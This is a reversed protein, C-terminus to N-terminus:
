KISLLLLFFFPLSKPMGAVTALADGALLLEDRARVLCSESWNGYYVLVQVISWGVPAASRDFPCADCADCATYAPTAPVWPPFILSYLFAPVLEPVAQIMYLIARLAHAYVAPLNTDLVVFASPFADAANRLRDFIPGTQLWQLGVPSDFVGDCDPTTLHTVLAVTQNWATFWAAMPETIVHSWPMSLLQILQVLGVTSNLTDGDMPIDWIPTAVDLGAAALNSAGAVALPSATTRLAGHIAAVLADRRQLPTVAERSAAVASLGLGAAVADDTAVLLGLEDLIALIMDLLLLAVEQATDGIAIIATNIEIVLPELNPALLGLLLANMPIQLIRVGVNVAANIAVQLAVIQPLAIVFAWVPDLAECFCNLVDTAANAADGIAALAATLDLPDNAIDGGLWDALAQVAASLATSLNELVLQFDQPDACAFLLQYYDTTVFKYWQM